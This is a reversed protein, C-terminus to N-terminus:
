KENAPIYFRILTGKGEESELHIEGGMLKLLDKVISLGLGNGGYLRTTTPEVQRFRDFVVLKDKEPIGIGTDSVIFEVRDPSVLSVGFYIQGKQTFKLANDLLNSFIQILRNEDTNLTFMEPAQLLKLDIQNKGEDALKKHFQIYLRNLMSGLSFTSKSIKVEGTELRSADLVDNIIQLLSEANKNIIRLLEKRESVKNASLDNEVLIETFGLIANLPTRIEHSMNALFSSKLQEAREANEKAEILDAIMQKMETVDEEIGVYNTIKGNNDKIPSIIGHAWYTEGNKKKNLFEETWNKGSRITKWMAEFYSTPHYGSKLINPTKGIVEDYLYGTIESFRPNIYEIKGHPNTILVSVPSQEVVKGLLKLMKEAEKKETVDQIIVHLCDREQFRIKSSFIEVYRFSGNALRHESEFHPSLQDSGGALRLKIKEKSQKSIQNINMKELQDITWGYFRSAAANANIIQGDPINIMLKAASHNEFLSRYNAESVRLARTAEERQTVDNSLVLRANKGELEIPHSIIEVYIIEGNKKRHRWIGSNYATIPSLRINDLLDDVDEAPRIDKITMQLFEDSTYGYKEQAMNNVMLFRLAELDYIWMPIPNHEFLYKYQEESKLLANRDKIRETIDRIVSLNGIWNDQNDYLKSGFTECTFIRGNKDIYDATFIRNPDSSDKHLIAQGVELFTERDAYLIAPSGGKLEDPSYGFTSQMGKNALIINRDTDTILVGDTMAHFMTEFLKQQKTLEIQVNKYDTIDINIGQLETLQEQDFRPIIRNLIWKLEGDPLIIRLDMDVPVRDTLLKEYGESIFHRDDPHVRSMFYEFSPEVENPELGYLRFCNESWRSKNNGIDFEWDGMKAVLQALKLSEESERLAKEAQKRETIDITLIFIGEPVPQVKLDFWGSTGDPYIFENEFEQITREHMATSLRRFLLTSEIGPYLETMSHGILEEKRYKGQKVAVKNLYIYHWDFGIIQCGELMNDLAFQYRHESEKLAELAHKRETMIESFLFLWEIEGPKEYCPYIEWRIWEFTGDKRYVIDEGKTETEGNLCKRHIEKWKESIGPFIEFHSKGDLAIGELEYDRIYQNSAALYKMDTDFMAIAVPAHEIFLNLIHEKKLLKDEIIKKESIDRIVYVLKNIGNHDDRIVSGNVDISFRTGDMRIGTYENQGIVQGNIRKKLRERIKEHEKEDIFRFVSLGTIQEGGPVRFMASLNPTAYLINGAHDTVALAEPIAEMVAGLFHDKEKLLFEAQKRAKIQRAYDSKLESLMSKVQSLEEILDKKTKDM